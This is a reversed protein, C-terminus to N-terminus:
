GFVQGALINNAEFPREGSVLTVNSGPSSNGELRCYAINVNRASTSTFLTNATITCMTFKVDVGGGASTSNFATGSAGSIISNSIELQGTNAMDIAATTAVLYADNVIVKTTGNIDFATAGTITRSQNGVVKFSGNTAAADILIAVGSFAQVLCNLLVMHTNASSAAYHVVNTLGLLYCDEVVCTATAVNNSTICPQGNAINTISLNRLSSSAAAAGLTVEGLILPRAGAVGGISSVTVEDVNISFDGVHVGPLVVIHAPFSPTGIANLAHQVTPYPSPGMGRQLMTFTMGTTGATTAAIEATNVTQIVVEHPVLTWIKANFESDAGLTAVVQNAIDTASATASIDIEIDRDAGTVPAGTAGTGDFWVGVSGAYDYLIFYDGDLTVKTEALFSCYTINCLGVVYETGLPYSMAMYGTDENYSFSKGQDGPGLTAVLADLISAGGGGAAELGSGDVTTTGWNIPM